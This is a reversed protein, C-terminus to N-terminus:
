EFTVPLSLPLYGSASPMVVWVDGTANRVAPDTLGDGDYDAPVPIYGSGGVGLLNTFTLTPDYATSPRFKWDGTTEGFVAPDALSDNNYIGPVAWYNTGGLLNSVEIPLYSNASLLARWDGMNREYIAPDAKLDGDYDAPVGSYGPAGLPQSMTFLVYNASSLLVKWVGTTEQYVAPDALRDGDYDASVPTYGIGGLGNLTTTFVAYGITSLRVKWTGTAEDYIGPDALGDGDYDASVGSSFGLTNVVIPGVYGIGTATLALTPTESITFKALKGRFSPTEETYGLYLANNEIVTHLAHYGGTMVTENQILNWNSADYVARAVPNAENSGKLYHVIFRGNYYSLGNIVGLKGDDQLIVSRSQVVNFNTDYVIRYYRDNVGPGVYQPSVFHFYGDLYIAADANAHSNSGTGELYSTIFNLNGDYKYIKHAAQGEPYFKGVYVYEGDGFLLMDNTPPENTVVQTIGIRTFDRNFKVLWLHGGDGSGAISFVIFHHNNQFIHKHDAIAEGATDNTSAISAYAGVANLNLDYKRVTIKANSECSAVINTGDYVPQSSTTGQDTDLYINTNQTFTLANTNREVAIVKFWVQTSYNENWDSGANWAIARGAGPTVGAGYGSGAFNTAALDYTAGNNTSVNVSVACAPTTSTLNYAIDVSKTGSRQSALVGTVQPAAAFVTGAGLLALAAALLREGFCQFQLRYKKNM